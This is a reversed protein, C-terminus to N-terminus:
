ISHNEFFTLFMHWFPCLFVLVQYWKCETKKKLIIDKGPIMLLYKQAWKPTYGEIEQTYDEIEIEKRRNWKTNEWLTKYLSNKTDDKITVYNKWMSEEAQPWKPTWKKTHEEILRNKKFSCYKRRMNILSRPIARLSIEKIKKMDQGGRKLSNQFNKQSGMKPSIGQYKKFVMNFIKSVLVISYLKECWIDRQIPWQQPIKPGM